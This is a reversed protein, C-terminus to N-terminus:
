DFASLQGNEILDHIKSMAWAEGSPTLQQREAVFVRYRDDSLAESLTAVFELRLPETDSEPANNKPLETLHQEIAAKIHLLALDLTDGEARVKPLSPVIAIFTSDGETLLIDRM